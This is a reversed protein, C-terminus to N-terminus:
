TDGEIVSILHMVQRHLNHVLKALSTIKKFIKMRCAVLLDLFNGSSEAKVREVAFDKNNTKMDKIKKEQNQFRTRFCLLNPLIVVDVAFFVCL